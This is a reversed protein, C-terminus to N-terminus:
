FRTFYQFLRSFIGSNKARVEKFESIGNCGDWCGRTMYAVTEAASRDEFLYGRAM